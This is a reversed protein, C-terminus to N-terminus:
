LLNVLGKLFDVLSTLFTGAGIAITGMEAIWQKTFIDVAVTSMTDTGGYNGVYNTATLAMNGGM